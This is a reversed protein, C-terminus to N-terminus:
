THYQCCISSVEAPFQADLATLAAFIASMSGIELALLSVLSEQPHHEFAHRLKRVLYNTSPPREPPPTPQPGGSLTAQVSDPIDPLASYVPVAPRRPQSALTRLSPYTSTSTLTCASLRLSAHMTIHTTSNPQSNLMVCAASCELQVHM